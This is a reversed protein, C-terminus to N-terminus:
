CELGSLVCCKPWMAPPMWAEVDAMSDPSEQSLLTPARDGAHLLITGSCFVILAWKVM